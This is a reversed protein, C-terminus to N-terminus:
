FSGCSDVRSSHGFLNVLGPYLLFPMEGPSIPNAFICLESFTPPFHVSENPQALSYKYPSTPSLSPSFTPCIECSLFALHFISNVHPAMLYKHTLSHFAFHSLIILRTPTYLKSQLAFSPFPPFHLSNKNDLCSIISVSFYFYFMYDM